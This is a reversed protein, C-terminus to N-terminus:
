QIPRVRGQEKTTLFKVEPWDEGTSKLRWANRALFLWRATYVGFNSLARPDNCIGSSPVQWAAANEEESLLDM